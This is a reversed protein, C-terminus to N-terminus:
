QSVQDYFRSHSMGVRNQQPMDGLGTILVGRLHSSQGPSLSRGLLHLLRHEDLFTVTGVPNRHYSDHRGLPHIYLRRRWFPAQSVVKTTRKAWVPLLYVARSHTIESRPQPTRCMFSDPVSRSCVPLSDANCHEHRKNDTLYTGIRFSRPGSRSQPM